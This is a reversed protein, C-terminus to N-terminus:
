LPVDGSINERLAGEPYVALLLEVVEPHCQYATAIHLPLNEYRNKAEALETFEKLMAKVVSPTAKYRCAEHLVTNEGEFVSKAAKPYMKFLSKTVSEDVQNRIALHLPMLNQSSEMKAAKPNIDALVKILAKTSHKNAAAVHLPTMGTDDQALAGEKTGLMEVVATTEAVLPSQCALHFASSKEEDLMDFANRAFPSNIM